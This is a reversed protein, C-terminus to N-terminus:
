RVIYRIDNILDKFKEEGNIYSKINNGTTYLAGSHNYNMMILDVYEKSIRQSKKEEKFREILDRAKKNDTVKKERFIKQRNLNQGFILYIIFGVGPLVILILLWAWTTTPEKREIFILSIASLINITFVILILISASM